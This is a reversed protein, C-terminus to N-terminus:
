ILNLMKNLIGINKENSLAKRLNEIDANNKILANLQLGSREFNKDYNIMFKPHIFEKNLRDMEMRYKSIRPFRRLFVADKLQAIKQNRNIENNNLIEAFEKSGIVDRINNKENLACENLLESLKIFEVPRMSLSEALAFLFPIDRSNFDFFLKIQNYSVNYKILYRFADEGWTLIKSVQHDKPLKLRQAWKAIKAPDNIQTKLLKYLRAKQLVNLEGGVAALLNYRLNILTEIEDPPNVINLPITNIKCKGAIRFRQFGDILRYKRGDWLATLPIIIGEARISKELSSSIYPYNIDFEDQSSIQSLPINEIVQTRM